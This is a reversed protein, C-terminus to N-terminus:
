KIYKFFSSLEVLVTRNKISKFFCLFLLIFNISLKEKGRMQMVPNVDHAGDGHLLPPWHMDFGFPSDYQLYTCLWFCCSNLDHIQRWFSVKISEILLEGWNGYTLKSINEHLNRSITFSGNINSFEFKHM